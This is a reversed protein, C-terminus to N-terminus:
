LIVFGNGVSSFFVKIMESWYQSCSLVRTKLSKLRNNQCPAANLLQPPVTSGDAQGSPSSKFEVKLDTFGCFDRTTNLHLMQCVQDLLRFLMFVCLTTDGFFKEFHSPVMWKQCAGVVLAVQSASPCACSVGMLRSNCKVASAKLLDSKLTKFNNLLFIVGAEAIWASTDACSFQPSLWRAFPHLHPRSFFANLFDLMILRIGANRSSWTCAPLRSLFRRALSSTAEAIRLAVCVVHFSLHAVAIGPADAEHLGRAAWLEVHEVHAITLVHHIPNYPDHDDM